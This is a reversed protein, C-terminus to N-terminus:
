VLELDGRNPTPTPEPTDDDGDDGSDNRYAQFQRGPTCILEVVCGADTFQVSLGDEVQIRVRIRKGGAIPTADVITGALQMSVSDGRKLDKARIPM